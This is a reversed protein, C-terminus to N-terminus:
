MISCGSDGQKHKHMRKKRNLKMREKEFDMIFRVQESNLAGPRLKRITNVVELGSIDYDYAMMALCVLMPARGLGAICHTCVTPNKPNYQETSPTQTKMPDAQETSADLSSMATTPPQQDVQKQSSQASSPFVDPRLSELLDFWQEIIYKPPKNGDPFEFELVACQIDSLESPPYTSECLRVVHHCNYKQITKKFQPLTDVTPCDTILFNWLPTEFLTSNVSRRTGKSM